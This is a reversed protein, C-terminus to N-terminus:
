KEDVARTAWNERRKNQSLRAGLTTWVLAAGNRQRNATVRQTTRQCAEGTPVLPSIEFFINPTLIRVEQFKPRKSSADSSNM